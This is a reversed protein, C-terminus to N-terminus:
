EVLQNCCLSVQDPPMHDMNPDWRREDYYGDDDEEESESLGERRRAWFNWDDVEEEESDCLDEDDDGGEDDLQGTGTGIEERLPSHKFGMEPICGPTIGEEKPSSSNSMGGNVGMAKWWCKGVKGVIPDPYPRCHVDHSPDDLCETFDLQQHPDEGGEETDRHAVHQPYLPM